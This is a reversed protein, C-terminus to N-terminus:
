REWLDEVYWRIEEVLGKYQEISLEGIDTILEKISSVARELDQLREKTKIREELQREQEDTLIQEGYREEYNM